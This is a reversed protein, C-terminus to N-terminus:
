VEKFTITYAAGNSNDLEITGDIQDTLGIVLQMGLSITKKFDIHAPLGKGNDAIRLVIKGDKLLIFAKSDNSGLYDILTDIMPTCWGLSTPSLTDWTSGTLPPFYLNQSKATHFFLFFSFLLLLKKM